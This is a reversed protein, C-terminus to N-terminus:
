GDQLQSNKYIELADDINGFFQVEGNTIYIAKNCISKLANFDHSAFILISSSGMLELLKDKSRKSFEMDGTSFFEDILFIDPVVCVSSSFALRAKMGESYIRLPLDLFDNLGTFEAVEKLKSKIEDKRTGRLINSLLINEYGTADSELGFGIDLMSNINGTCKIEGSTPHYIGAMLRLLTTKGSGNPGIVAVKEGHNIQLNVNKLGQIIKRGKDNTEQRTFGIKKGLGTIENRFSRSAVDYLPFDLHVNKLTINSDM